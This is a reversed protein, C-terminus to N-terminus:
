QAVTLTDMFQGNGSVVLQGDVYVEEVNRDDGVYVFKQILELLKQEQTVAAPKPINFADIPGANVEVVIADFRKGKAFNGLKDAIALATFVVM